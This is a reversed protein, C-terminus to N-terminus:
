WTFKYGMGRVTHIHRPHRTDLEVKARLRSVHSDIARDFAESAGAEDLAEILENRSFVRGPAETLVTLMRYEMATLAIERGEVKLTRRDHDLKSGAPASDPEARLERRLVANVRALLEMHNFPKALYDDAGLNLGKIRDADGGKGTLMIIPTQDGAERIKRIVEFGDIEPLMVDLLLLDPHDGLLPIGKSPRDAITIDFGHEVMVTKLLFSLTADDDIMLINRM